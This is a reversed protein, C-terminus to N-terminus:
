KGSGLSETTAAVIRLFSSGVASNTSWGAPEAVTGPYQLGLIQESSWCSTAM